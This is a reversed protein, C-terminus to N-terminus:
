ENTEQTEHKTGEREAHHEQAQRIAEAMRLIADASTWTLSSIHKIQWEEQDGTLRRRVVYTDDAIYRDEDEEYRIM